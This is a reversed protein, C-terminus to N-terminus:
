RANDQAAPPQATLLKAAKKKRKLKVALRHKKLIHKRKSRAM